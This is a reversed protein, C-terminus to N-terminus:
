NQELGSAKAKEALFRAMQRLENDKGRRYEMCDVLVRDGGLQRRFARDAIQQLAQLGEGRQALLADAGDGELNIRTGDITTEVKADLALGMEKAVKMLFDAVQQQASM